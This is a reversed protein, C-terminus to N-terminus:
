VNAYVGWKGEMQGHFIWKGWEVKVGLSIGSSPGGQAWFFIGRDGMKTSSYSAITTNWLDGIVTVHSQYLKEINQLFATLIEDLM